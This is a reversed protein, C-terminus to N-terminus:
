MKEEEQSIAHNDVASHEERGLFAMQVGITFIAGAM